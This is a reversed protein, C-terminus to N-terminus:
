RTKEVSEALTMIEKVGVAASEGIVTQRAAMGRRANVASCRDYEVLCTRALDRGIGFM